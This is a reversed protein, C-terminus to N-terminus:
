ICNVNTRFPTRGEPDGATIENGVRGLNSGREGEGRTEAPAAVVARM